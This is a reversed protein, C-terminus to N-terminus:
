RTFAPILENPLSQLMKGMGKNHSTVVAILDLEPFIFIFQGGAGRGEIATFTKGNIPFDEV